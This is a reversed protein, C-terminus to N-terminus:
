ESGDYERQVRFRLVCVTHGFGELLRLYRFVLRWCREPNNDIVFNVVHCLNTAKM